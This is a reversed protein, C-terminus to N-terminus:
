LSCLDRHDNRDVLDIFGVGVGVPNLLPKGAEANLRDIPAAIYFHDGNRRLVALTEVRQEFRDEKLRVNEIQLRAGSPTRGADHKLGLEVLAAARNCRRKYLLSRKAYTVREDDALIISLDTRHEGVSSLDHFLCRRRGRDLHEAQLADGLRTVRELYNRINVTCLGD